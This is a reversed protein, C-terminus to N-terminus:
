TEERGLDPTLKKGRTVGTFASAWFDEDVRREGQIGAAAPMVVPIYFATGKTTM